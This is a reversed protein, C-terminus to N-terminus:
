GVSDYCWFVLYYRYEASLVYLLLHINHIRDGRYLTFVSADLYNLQKMILATRSPMTCITSYVTDLIIHYIIYIVKM